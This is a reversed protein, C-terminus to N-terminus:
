PTYAALSSQFTKGAPPSTSDAFLAGGDHHARLAYRSVRAVLDFRFGLGSNIPTFIADSFDEARLYLGPHTGEERILVPTEDQTFRFGQSFNLTSGGGSISFIPRAESMGESTEGISQLIVTEGATPTGAMWSYLLTPVVALVGEQAIATTTVGAWATAADEAFMFLGTSGRRLHNVFAKLAQGTFNGSTDTLDARDELTIRVREEVAQRDSSPRGTISESDPGVPIQFRHIWSMAPLEVVELLTSAADDPYYYIAPM